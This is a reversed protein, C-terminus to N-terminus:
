EEPFLDALRHSSTSPPAVWAAAEEVPATRVADLLDKPSAEQEVRGPKGLSAAVFSAGAAGDATDKSGNTGDPFRKPHDVKTKREGTTWSGTLYFRRLNAMEKLFIDCGTPISGRGEQFIRRLAMYAGDDRDVSVLSTDFKLKGLAQRTDVSQYGDTSVHIIPFGLRDRLFVLFERVKQFDVRDGAECTVGIIFDFWFVHDRIKILKGQDDMRQVAANAPRCVMSIGYRNRGPAEAIDLHVFREVAPHFKPKWLDNIEDCLVCVRSRVFDEILANREQTYSIVVEDRAWPLMRREDICSYVSEMDPVLLFAGDAPIGARDRLALDIDDVFGQRQSEPVMLVDEDEQPLETEKLIRPKFGKVGLAVRFKQPTDLQPKAEWIAYDSVFTHPDAAREKRHQQSFDSKLRASSAMCLLGPSRGQADAFRSDIRSRANGYLTYVQGEEGESGPKGFDTEDMLGGILDVGLVHTVVAGMAIRINKPWIQYMAMPDVRRRQGKSERDDGIQKRLWPSQECFGVFKKYAVSETLYKYVNFFGIVVESGQLLGYFRHPSWMCLMHVLQSLQALVAATSKGVGIAGGLIWEHIGNAPNLVYLLDRRWCPFLDQSIHGMYQPDDLFEETTPPMQQYDVEWLRRMTVSEGSEILERLVSVIVHREHLSLGDFTDRDGHQDETLVHELLRELEEDSMEPSHIPLTEGAM